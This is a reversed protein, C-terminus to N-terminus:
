FLMYDVFGWDVHDYAKELDIKFIVGEKKSRKRSDILENAVLVGDLNQRGAVFAGQFPSIISPLAKKLCNALIKALM